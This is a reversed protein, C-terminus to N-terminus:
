FWGKFKGEKPLQSKGEMEDVAKDPIDIGFQRALLQVQKLQSPKIQGSKM